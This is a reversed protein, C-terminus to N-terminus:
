RGVVSGNWTAGGDTTGWVTTEPCIVHATRGDQYGLALVRDQLELGVPCTLTNRWHAGGDFSTEILQGGAEATLGSLTTASGATFGYFFSFPVVIPARYTQGGDDSRILTTAQAADNHCLVTLHWLPATAAGVTYTVGPCPDARTQWTTGADFSAYLTAKKGMAGGASNALGFVYIRQSGEPIILAGAMRIIPGADHWPAGTTAARQVHCGGFCDMTGAYGAVRFASRGAYELQLTPTASSEPQWTQGGDLTHFLASRFAYGVQLSGFRMSDVCPTGHWCDIQGNANSVAAAPANIARWTAGSDSTRLIGACQGVGDCPVVGLVWGDYDSVFTLDVALFAPTPSPSPTPVAPSPSPSPAAPSPSPSKATGTPQSCGSAILVAVAVFIPPLKV